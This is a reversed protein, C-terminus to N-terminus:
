AVAYRRKHGCVPCAYLEWKVGRGDFYTKVYRYTRQKGCGWCFGEM